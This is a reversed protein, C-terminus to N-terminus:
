LSKLYVLVSITASLASVLLALISIAIAIWSRIDTWKARIHREIAQEGEVTIVIKDDYEPLDEFRIDARANCVFGAEFMSSLERPDINDRDFPMRDRHKKLVRYENKTINRNMSDCGKAIMIASAPKFILVGM